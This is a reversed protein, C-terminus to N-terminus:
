DGQGPRHAWHDSDDAEHCKNEVVSEWPLHISAGGGFSGTTAQVHTQFGMEGNTEAPHLHFMNAVRRRRLREKSREKLLMFAVQLHVVSGLVEM